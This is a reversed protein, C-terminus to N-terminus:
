IIYRSRIDEAVGRIFDLFVARYDEKVKKFGLFVSLDGALVTKIRQSLKHDLDPDDSDINWEQLGFTESFGTGRIDININVFPKGLGAAVISAHLRSGIVMRSERYFEIFKDPYNSFFIEEEPFIEQALFVDRDDHCSIVPHEGAEKVVRLVLSMRKILDQYLKSDKKLVPFPFTLAIHGQEKLNFDENYLHMAPCGTVKGGNFGLKQLFRNTLDDRVSSLRAVENTVKIDEYFSKNEIHPEKNIGRSSAGLGILYLPPILKVIEERRIRLAWNNYQDSGGVIVADAYQNSININEGQLRFPKGWGRNVACPKPVFVAGPLYEGLYKRISRIVFHDGANYTHPCYHHIIFTKRRFKKLSRADPCPEIAVRKKFRFKM